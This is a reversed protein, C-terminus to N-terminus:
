EMEGIEPRLQTKFVAQITEINFGRRLLAMVTKQRDSPATGLRLKAMLKRVMEQQTARPMSQGMEQEIEEGSFGKARLKWLIAKPGHGRECEQRIAARLYERDEVYGLQQVWEVTERIAKECFGKAALKRHLLCTTYNQRALLNLAKKRIQKKEEANLWNIFEEFTSFSSPVRTQPPLFCLSRMEQKENDDWLEWRGEVKRLYWNM